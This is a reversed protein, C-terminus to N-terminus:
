KIKISNGRNIARPSSVSLSTIVVLIALLNGTNINLAEMGILFISCFIFISSNHQEKRLAGGPCFFDIILYRFFFILHYKWAHNIKTKCPTLSLCKLYTLFFLFISSNIFLFFIGDYSNFLFLVDINLVNTSCVLM